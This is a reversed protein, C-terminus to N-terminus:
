EQAIIILMEVSEEQTQQVPVDFFEEGLRLRIRKQPIVEVIKEWLHLVPTVVLQEVVRWQTPEQPLGKIVAAIKELLSALRQLPATTAVDGCGDSSKGM